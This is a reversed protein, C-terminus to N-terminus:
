GSSPRARWRPATTPRAAPRAHEVGGSRRRGGRSPRTPCLRPRPRPSRRCWRRGARAPCPSPMWAAFAPMRSTPSTSATLLASRSPADRVVRSRRCMTSIASRTLRAPAWRHHPHHGRGALPDVVEDVGDLGVPRVEAGVPQAVPPQGPGRALDLGPARPAAARTPRTAPASRSPASAASTTSPRVSAHDAASRRTSAVRVVQRDTPGRASLEDDRGRLRGPTPSTSPCPDPVGATIRSGDRATGGPRRASPSCATSAPDRTSSRSSSRGARRSSTTPAGSPCRCRATAQRSRWGCSSATLRVAVRTGRWTLRFCLSNGPRPLRPDLTLRGGHDRM